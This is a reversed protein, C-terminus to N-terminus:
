NAAQLQPSTRRASLERAAVFSVIAILALSADVGFLAWDRVVFTTLLHDGTLLWNSILAITCLSGLLFSQEAWARQSRIWGHIISAGWVSYFAFVEWEARSSGGWTWTGAPLLKNAVFFAATANLLGMVCWISLGEVFRVGRLGCKAHKKRRAELWFIYGTAIMLCGLLGALFYLWRLLWHEFHIEHFGALWSRVEYGATTSPATILEGSDADFVVRLAKNSVEWKPSRTFTVYGEADGPNQIIVAGLGPNSWHAEARVKLADLSVVPGIAAAGSAGQVHWSTIASYFDNRPRDSDPYAASLTPHLYLTFLIVVGSLTILIHFPLALLSSLNHLDLTTRAPKSRRFVFFDKFLRRHIIVGSFMALLMYMAACASIWRGYPLGLRYHMPYLFYKASLTDPEGLWELSGPDLYNEVREGDSTTVRVMWVPNTDSGPFILVNRPSPGYIALTKAYIADLSPSTKPAEIRTNPMMWRDIETKFVSITGLFFMVFM